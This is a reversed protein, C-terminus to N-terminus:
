QHAGSSGSQGADSQPAHAVAGACSASCAVGAVAALVLAAALTGAAVCAKVASGGGTSHSVHENSERSHGIRACRHLAQAWRARSSRRPRAWALKLTVRLRFSTKRIHFLHRPLPFASRSPSRATLTLGAFAAGSYRGSLRVTVISGLVTGPIAAATRPLHHGQNETGVPLWERARPRRNEFVRVHLANAGPPLRIQPM